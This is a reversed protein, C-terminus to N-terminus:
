WGHLDFDDDVESADQGWHLWWVRFAVCFPAILMLILSCWAPPPFGLLSVVAVELVICLMAATRPRLRGKPDLFLGGGGNM